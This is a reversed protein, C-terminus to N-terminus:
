DKFTQLNTEPGLHADCHCFTSSERLRGTYREGGAVPLCLFQLLTKSSQCHNVQPRSQMTISSVHYHHSKEFRTLSEADMVVM